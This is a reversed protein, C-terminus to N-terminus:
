IAGPVQFYGDSQEPANALIESRTFTKECVDERLVNSLDLVSVLPKVNEADVNDLAAFSKILETMRGSIAEREDCPLDLMAVPEYKRIDLM